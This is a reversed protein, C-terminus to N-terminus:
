HGWRELLIESTKADAAAKTAIGEFETLQGDIIIVLRALKRSYTVTIRDANNAYHGVHSVPAFAQIPKLPAITTSM